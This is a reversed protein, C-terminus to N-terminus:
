ATNTIPLMQDLLKSWTAHGLTKACEIQGGLRPTMALGISCLWLQTHTAQVHSSAVPESRVRM